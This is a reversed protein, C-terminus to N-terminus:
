RSTFGPFTIISPHPRTFTSSKPSAACIRVLMDRALWAYRPVLPVPGYM